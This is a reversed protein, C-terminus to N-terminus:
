VLAMTCVKKSVTFLKCPATKKMLKHSWKIFHQRMNEKKEFIIHIYQTFAIYSM